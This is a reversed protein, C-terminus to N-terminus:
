SEGPFLVARSVRVDHREPFHRRRAFAGGEGAIRGLWWCCSELMPGHRSRGSVLSKASVSGAGVGRARVRRASLAAFVEGSDVKLRVRDPLMRCLVLSGRRRWARDYPANGLLGLVPGADWVEKRPATSAWM